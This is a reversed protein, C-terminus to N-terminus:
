SLPSRLQRCDENHSSCSGETAGIKTPRHQQRYAASSKVQDEHGHIHKEQKKATSYCCLLSTYSISYLHRQNTGLGVRAVLKTQIIQACVLACGLDINHKNHKPIM